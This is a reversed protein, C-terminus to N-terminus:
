EALEGSYESTQLCALTISARVQSSSTLQSSNGVKQNYIAQEGAGLCVAFWFLCRQMFWTVRNITVKSIGSSHHPNTYVSHNGPLCLTWVVESLNWFCM